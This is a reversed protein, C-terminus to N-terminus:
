CHAAHYLVLGAQIFQFRDPPKCYLTHFGDLATWLLFNLSDNDFNSSVHLWHLCSWREVFVYLFNCYRDDLFVSSNCQILLEHEEVFHHGIDVHVTAGGERYHFPLFSLFLAALANEANGPPWYMSKSAHLCLHCLRWRWSCSSWPSWHIRNLLEQEPCFFMGPVLSVYIEGLILASDSAPLIPGNKTDVWGLKATGSTSLQYSVAPLPANVYHQFRGHQVGNAVNQLQFRRNTIINLMKSNSGEMECAIQSRSGEMGCAIQLM